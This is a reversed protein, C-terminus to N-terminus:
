RKVEKILQEKDRRLKEEIEKERASTDVPKADGFVSARASVAPQKSASRFSM